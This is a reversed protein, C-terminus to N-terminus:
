SILATDFTGAEEDWYQQVELLQKEVRNKM